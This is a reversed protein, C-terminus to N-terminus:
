HRNETSYILYKSSIHEITHTDSIYKRYHIGEVLAELSEKVNIGNKVSTEHYLLNHKKCFNQVLELPVTRELDLKNGIIM